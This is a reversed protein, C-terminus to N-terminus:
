FQLSLGVRWARGPDVVISPDERNYRGDMNADGSGRSTVYYRKDTLNEVRVYASLRAGPWSSIKRSYQATLNLLTRGPLKEQNVEDAWSTGKYDLEGSFTWGPAPLYNARLNIQHPSTRPLKKGTNNFQSVTFNSQWFGPNAQQAATPNAVYSGNANGYTQYYSDYRTFWSDLFTYAADFSWNRQLQTRLELELGRSRAGGINRFQSGGGEPNNTGSYQGNSDIIFDKRDVQFVTASLSSPWGALQMQQKLGIEFSTAKEPKLDPNGQVLANTTTQGRYLQEATPARFGTSLAAHVSTDTNFAHTVGLRYSSVDFDKREHVTQNGNGAVPLADFRVGVRDHRLNFTAVTKDTLGYKAEAYLAQNTEVTDDDSLATGALTVPGTPRSRYSNLAATRNVFSGRKLELGGMLALREFRTRYETKFGRQVQSYDTIASYDQANTTSAGTATFRMPSYWFSTDDQYQYLVAMLNSREDLDNSYTLNYRSIDVNFNRNYGRGGDLGKPDNLANVEGTVSGERDRFRESKEFGFSLDSKADLAYKLNGSWTKSYTRSMFYYGDQDRDSYQIHGTLDDKAFGARVMARRYGSSGADTEVKFGQQSAGRKTTIIVAGALADEGYLYSAGGKVVKISEINDIDINVKGTREFVPVGDIIIAVGPKEGMYRQNEVGRLKIKVTEGDGQLDATVGSISRLVEVLNKAHQEEVQKRSITVSSVPDTASSAFRDDIASGTITIPNLVDSTQAHALSCLGMAGLCAWHISSLRLM